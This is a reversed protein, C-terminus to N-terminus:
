ESRRQSFLWNWLDTRECVLECIDHGAHPIITLRPQGGSGRIADVMEQSQGLQVIEDDAGHFAWVPIEALVKATKADGGGSIPVIAAFLEPYAAATRWVGYAGMSYGVLYTRQRDVSYKSALHQVFEAVAEPDWGQKPLCQPAVVIAPLNKPVPGCVRLMRPDNGREGSGHLFVILPWVDDKAYNAPLRIVFERGLATSEFSDFGVRGPSPSHWWRTIPPWTLQTILLVIALALLLELATTHVLVFIRRMLYM